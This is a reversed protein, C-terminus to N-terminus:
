IIHTWLTPVVAIQPQHATCSLALRLLATVPALAPLSAGPRARWVARRLAGAALGGQRGPSPARGPPRGPSSREGLRLNLHAFKDRENLTGAM